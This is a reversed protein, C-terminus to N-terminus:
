NVWLEVHFAAATGRVVLYLGRPNSADRAVIALRKAEPLEANARGDRQRYAEGFCGDLAERAARWTALAREAPANEILACTYARGSDEAHKCLGLPAPMAALAVHGGKDLM